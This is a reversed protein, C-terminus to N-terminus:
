FGHYVWRTCIKRLLCVTQGALRIQSIRELRDLTPWPPSSLAYGVFMAPPNGSSRSALLQMQMPVEAEYRFPQFSLPCTQNPPLIGGLVLFLFVSLLFQLSTPFFRFATIASSRCSLDGTDRVARSLYAYRGGLRSAQSPCRRKLPTLSTRETRQCKAVICM